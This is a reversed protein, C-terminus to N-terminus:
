CASQDLQQRISAAVTSICWRTCRARVAAQQWVPELHQHGGVVAYRSAGCRAQRLWGCRGAPRSLPEPRTTGYQKAAGRIFAYLVQPNNIGQATEGATMSYMGSKVPYHAGMMNTIMGNFRNGSSEVYREGFSYFSMFRPFMNMDAHGVNPHTDQQQQWVYGGDWEAMAVGLYREGMASYLAAPPTTNVHPNGPETPGAGTTWWNAREFATACTTPHSECGGGMVADALGFGGPHSSNDCPGDGWCGLQLELQNLSGANAGRPGTFITFNPLRSSNSLPPHFVNRDWQMADEPRHHTAFVRRRCTKSSSAGAANPIPVIFLLLLLLVRVPLALVAAMASRSPRLPQM